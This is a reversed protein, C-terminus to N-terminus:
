LSKLFTVPDYPVLASKSPPIHGLQLVIMPSIVQFVVGGEKAGGEERSGVELKLKERSFVKRGRLKKQM